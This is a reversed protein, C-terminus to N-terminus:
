AVFGNHDLEDIYKAWYINDLKFLMLWLIPIFANAELEFVATQYFDAWQNQSGIPMHSFTTSTLFVPHSM